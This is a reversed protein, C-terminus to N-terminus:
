GFPGFGCAINPLGMLIEALEAYIRKVIGPDYFLRVRVVFWIVKLWPKSSTIRSIQEM